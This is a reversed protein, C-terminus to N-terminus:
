VIMFMEIVRIIYRFTTHPAIPCQSVMPVGDMHPTDRQHLGHWHLTTSEGMLRNVVDVRITDGFCVQLRPGPMMRNIVVISRAMGDAAICHPRYCDAYTRPCDFCAKSMAEYWEVIFTYNCVLPAGSIRCERACPHNRYTAPDM